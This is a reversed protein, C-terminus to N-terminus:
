DTRRRDAGPIEAGIERTLWEERYRELEPTAPYHEDARWPYGSMARFPLPELREGAFTNRDADKDWGQSELFLTRRFGAAVPPLATADFELALEDGPALIATRDDAEALLEGVDGYRTYRGPFPLWPSDFAVEDYDYVHPANPAQRFMTSFGRYALEARSPSLLAVRRAESDAFHTTWAIRDWALWLSSVIRLRLAGSPLAPTDVVMTKTKGPPLGFDAVLVEWGDATEVELRPALYPLDTRQAAALNLSADSPFVWGDLHLRIPAAPAHDLEFTFSWAPAMGQLPGATFGAAYIEDRYAIAPTVTAGRGDWAASPPRLGRSALVLEPQPPAGPVVRLNSAVEVAEPADIVWLRVQDFFAAEWLEETLRLSYIGQRATLGDVRVLEGPDPSAWIGPAVPLGIPSNWLLDTVFEFREGTWAYLFPCSGKLVQEEVIRQDGVPAIRNQPVGNSWVVRLTDASPLSGLGLHTAEDDVERFQYAAGRSLELTAGFGLRDNKGNGQELGRLRVSLWHNRNGGRNDFRVLGAPGVAALDLDGDGDFDASTLASLAGAPAAVPLRELHPAALAGRVGLAVIGAPGALALDLRGDNDADFAIVADFRGAPAGALPWPAFSGGTNRFFRVGAPGTVVLDPRGDADLDASAADLLTGAGELRAARTRDSFRGQRLNDLWFLGSAGVALLDVDGDRDLDSALLRRVAGYALPPLVEPPMASVPGPVASRLLAGREAGQGALALDLDGELDFDLAAIAAGRLVPEGAAFPWPSFGAIGGRLRLGGGRGVALLDVRGDQDLDAAQLALLGAAQGLIEPRFNTTALRAEIAIQGASEGSILRVLDARLDGDLDTSLLTRAGSPSPRGPNAGLAMAAGDGGFSVSLPPGFVRAPPERVFRAVPIGLIGSSLERVGQHFLAGPRLLNALQQMPLRMGPLDGADLATTLRDLAATAGSPAEWLLERIRLAAATAAKRDQRAVARQGAGLLVVLNDPRLRTLQVLAADMAAGGPDDGMADGHRFLAFQLDVRDPVSEAAARFLALAGELDGEAAAIEGEIAVLDARGPALPFARALASRAEGLRAQRLYAIALNAYPLPDDPAQRTLEVFTSAAASYQENELEALGRQRLGLANESPPSSAAAAATSLPSAPIALIALLAPLALKWPRPSWRCNM